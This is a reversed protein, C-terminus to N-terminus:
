NPLLSCKCSCHAIRTHRGTRSYIDLGMCFREARLWACKQSLCWRRRCRWSLRILSRRPPTFSLHDLYARSRLGIDYVIYAPRSTRRRAMTCTQNLTWRSPRTGGKWSSTSSVVCACCLLTQTHLRQLRSLHRLRTSPVAQTYRSATPSTFPTICGILCHAPRYRLLFASISSSPAPATIPFLCAILLYTSVAGQSIFSQLFIM